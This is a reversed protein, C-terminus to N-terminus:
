PRKRPTGIAWLHRTTRIYWMGDVLAPSAIMGEGLTNTRLLKFERGHQIVFTTGADNTVFVKGDFAVPAPSFSERAAEGLRAQWFPDGTRADFATVISTMDNILYLTDGVLMPAPVFPSGREKRWAVNTETVDGSGGPKIALTPGARGSSCYVLGHGVVPTPM